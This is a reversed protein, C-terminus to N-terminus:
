LKNSISSNVLYKFYNILDFGVVYLILKDEKSAIVYITKTENNVHLNIPTINDNITLIHESDSWVNNNLLLMKVIETRQIAHLSNSLALLGNNSNILEADIIKANEYTSSMNRRISLDNANVSLSILYPINNLNESLNDYTIVYTNNFNNWTVKDWYYDVYDNEIVKWSNNANNYYLLIMSITLDENILYGCVLMNYLNDYNFSRVNFSYDPVTEDKLIENNTIVCHFFKNADDIGIADGSITETDHLKFDTITLGVSLKLNVWNTNLNNYSSTMLINNNFAVYFLNATKCVGHSIEVDNNIIFKSGFSTIPKPEKFDYTNNVLDCIIIQFYMYLNVDTSTSDFTIPQEKSYIIITLLHKTEDYLSDLCYGSNLTTKRKYLKGFLKGEYYRTLNNTSSEKKINNLTLKNQANKDSIKKIVDKYKAIELEVLKRNM